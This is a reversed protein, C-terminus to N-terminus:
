EKTVVEDLNLILNCVLTTAALEAVDLSENRKAEGIALLQEAAPKDAQYRALHSQFSEVLIALEDASPQRATGLRFALSLRDAPTVAVAESVSRAELLVREALKRAAEVYPVDNMLALAQLPTNTRSRRVVCAERSPADFTMLGPPPATRKWFIYLTRRYNADGGDPKYNQTNSGQFAVSEWIGQPQYPKVGKGGQEEILLGSVFLASDRLVEADLRFRPGRALLQNEPDRAILEQSV